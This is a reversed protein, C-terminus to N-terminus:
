LMMLPLASPRREDARGRERKSRNRRFNRSSKEEHQQQQLDALPIFDGEDVLRGKLAELM